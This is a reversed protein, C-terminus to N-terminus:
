PRETSPATAPCNPGTPRFSGRPRPRIPLPPNIRLLEPVFAALGGKDYVSILVREIKVRDDITEVFNM